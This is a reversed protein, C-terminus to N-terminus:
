SLPFTVQWNGAIYKQSTVFEGTLTYDPLKEYEVTIIQEAYVDRQAADRYTYGFDAQEGVNEGNEDLLMFHGHTDTHEVDEYKSLIHLAGDVYGINLVSFGPVPTCVPEAQPILFRMTEAEPLADANYAYGGIISTHKETEPEYPISRLDIEEVEGEKRIKGLLMSGVSFTMKGEPLDSGNMTELHVIFYATHTEPDYESFSCHGALDRRVRISYSDNLDWGGEPCTGTLDRMALYVNAECGSREASIVTMEIGQDTCSRQVPKFTQAAAPAIRYLVDYAPDVGAATLAPLPCVILAAAVSAAAIRKIIRRRIPRKAPVSIDLYREDIEGMAKMFQDTNM